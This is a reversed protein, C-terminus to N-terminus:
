GNSLPGPSEEGGVWRRKRLREKRRDKDEEGGKGKLGKLGEGKELDRRSREFCPKRVFIVLDCRCTPCIIIPRGGSTKRKGWGSRLHSCCDYRGLVKFDLRLEVRKVKEM